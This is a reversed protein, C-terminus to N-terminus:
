GKEPMRWHHGCKKCAVNMWVDSAPDPDDESPPPTTKGSTLVVFRGYLECSKCVSSEGFRWAQTMARHYHWWCKWGVVLAIAIEILQCFTEVRSGPAFVADLCITVVVMCIVCLVLAAHATLLQQEYWKRFGLRSITDVPEM